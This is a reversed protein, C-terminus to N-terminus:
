FHFIPEVTSRPQTLGLQRWMELSAAPLAIVLVYVALYSWLPAGLFSQGTVALVALAGVVWGWAAVGQRRDASVWQVIPILGLPAVFLGIPSVVVLSAAMVLLLGGSAWVSLRPLRVPQQPQEFLIQEFDQRPNHHPHMKNRM